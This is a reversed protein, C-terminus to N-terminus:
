GREMLFSRLIETYEDAANLYPFHGKSKFAYVEAEPYLERVGSQLVPKILPDNDSEIIIKPITKHIPSYDPEFYDLVIDLRGAFQAKSMYGSYQELLYAEVLPSNESSPVVRAKVNGKFLRMVLWEPIFPLAKRIGGNENLFIQNPPFTNGLVLKDLREPHKLLFYQAMYGGMSTGIISVQEVGEADLIAILGEIAEELSGVEPLTTSIINFDNKLSDIQQWWIDYAGGMGHLFLLYKKGKGLSLYEWDSGNHALVKCSQNRFKNLSKQISEEGTYLDSFTQQKVPILYFIAIISVFFVLFYILKNKM